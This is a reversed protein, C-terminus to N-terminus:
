NEQIFKKNFEETVPSYNSDAAIYEGNELVMDTSSAVGIVTRESSLLPGGSDGPCIQGVSAEENPGILKIRKNEDIKTIRHHALRKIGSHQLTQNNDCGFGVMIVEQDLSPAKKSLPIVELERLYESGEEDLPELHILALDVHSGKKAELWRPNMPASTIDFIKGDVEIQKSASLKARYVCHAATLITKPRIHTGTCLGGGEMRLKVVGPYDTTEEGNVMFANALLTQMSLIIVLLLKM